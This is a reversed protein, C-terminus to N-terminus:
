NQFNVNFSGDTIAKTDAANQNKGTFTFNGKVNTATIETITVSGAAGSNDYPAAWTTSTMNSLNVETYSGVVSIGATDSIEYTGTTTVGSLLLQIVKGSADSGQVVLIGSQMTAYTAATISTFNTSGAKAKITGAAASGGGGGGDSSSCSTLLTAMAFVIAFSIHKITKMTKKHKLNHYLNAWFVLHLCYPM